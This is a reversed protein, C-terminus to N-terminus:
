GLRDMILKGVKQALIIGPLVGLAGLGEIAFAPALKGFERLTPIM